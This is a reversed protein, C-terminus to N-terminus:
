RQLIFKTTRKLWSTDRSAFLLEADLTKGSHMVITATDGLPKGIEVTSRVSCTSSLVGLLCLLLRTM